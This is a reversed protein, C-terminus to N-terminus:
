QCTNRIGMKTLVLRKLFIQAAAQAAGGELQAEVEEKIVLNGVNDAAFYYLIVPRMHEEDFDVVAVHAGAGFVDEGRV